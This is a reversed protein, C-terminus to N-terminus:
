VKLLYSFVRFKHSCNLCVSNSEITILYVYEDKNIWDILGTSQLFFDLPDQHIALVSEDFYEQLCISIVNRNILSTSKSIGVSEFPPDLISTYSDPDSLHEQYRNMALDEFHRSSGIANRISVIVSNIWCSM